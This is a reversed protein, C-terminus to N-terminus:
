RMKGARVRRAILFMMKKGWLKLIVPTDTTIVVMSLCHQIFHKMHGSIDNGFLSGLVLGHTMKSTFSNIPINNHKVPFHFEDITGHTMIPIGVPRV